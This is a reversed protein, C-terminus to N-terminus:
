QPWGEREPASYGRKRMQEEIEKQSEVFKTERNRLQYYDGHGGPYPPQPASSRGPAGREEMGPPTGIGGYGGYGGQWSAIMPEDHMPPMQPMQVTGHNTFAGQARGFGAAIARARAIKEEHSPLRRFTRHPDGAQIRVEWDRARRRADTVSTPPLQGFTVHDGFEAIGLGHIKLGPGSSNRSMNAASPVTPSFENAFNGPSFHYPPMNQNQAPNPTSTTIPPVTHPSPHNSPTNSAWGGTGYLLSAATPNLPTIPASTGYVNMPYAESSTMGASPYRPMPIPPNSHALKPSKQAPSGDALRMRPSSHSTPINQAFPSSQMPPSYMRHPPPESHTISARTQNSGDRSMRNAAIDAFNPPDDRVPYALPPTTYHQSEPSQSGPRSNYTSHQGRTVTVNVDYPLPSPNPGRVNPQQYDSRFSRPDPQSPAYGQSYPADYRDYGQGGSQMVSRIPAFPSQYTTGAPVIGPDRGRGREEGPPLFPCDAQPASSIRPPVQSSNLTSTPPQGQIVSAYTQKPTQVNRSNSSSRSWISGSERTPPPSRHTVKTLATVADSSGSLQDQGQPTSRGISGLAHEIAMQTLPSPKTINSLGASPQRPKKPPLGFEQNMTSSTGPRATSGSLEREMDEGGGDYSLPLQNGPSHNVIRPLYRPSPEGLSSPSDTTPRTLPFGFENESDLNLPTPRHGPTKISGISQGSSSSSGTRDFISDQVEIIREVSEQSSGPEHDRIELSIDIMVPEFEGKLASLDYSKSYHRIHERLVHGHADYERYDTVRAPKTRAKIRRDAERFSHAFLRIALRLWRPIEHTHQSEERCYSQIMMHMKLMDIPEPAILSDKSSSISNADDPDNRELLAYRMLISYTTNIDPADDGEERSRVDIQEAKLSKLGLNVMEVPINPGFFSLMKILQYPGDYGRKKLDDLIHQFINKLRPDDPYSRMNYKEIPEHTDALRRAIADIALPLGGVKELLDNASKIQKQKPKSIPIMKFLLKRADDLKLPPVKVPKPRLMRQVTTGQFSRSVFLLSSDKSDPIFPGIPDVDKINMIRLGDMIILWDHRSEFWSKVVQVYSNSDYQDYPVKNLVMEPADVTVVKQFIAFFDKYMESPTHSNIWFIGGPFKDRKTHVYQRALHTKGGGAAGHLLVAATGFERRNDFLYMDLQKLEKEMGIFFTNPRFGPPVIFYPERREPQQPPSELVTSGLPSSPNRNVISSLDATSNGVSFCFGILLRYNFVNLCDGM